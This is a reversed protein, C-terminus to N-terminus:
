RSIGGRTSPTSISRGPIMMPANMAAMREPWNWREHTGPRQDAANPSLAMTRNIAANTPPIMRANPARHAPPHVLPWPMLPVLWSESALITDAAQKKIPPIM